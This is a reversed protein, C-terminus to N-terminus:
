IVPEGCGPDCLENVHDCECRLENVFELGVGGVACGLTWSKWEWVLLQLKSMRVVYNSDMPAAAEYAAVARRLKRIEDFSQSVQSQFQDKEDRYMEVLDIKQLLHTELAEIYALRPPKSQANAVTQLTAQKWDDEM